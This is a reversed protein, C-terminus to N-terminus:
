KLADITLEDVEFAKISVRLSSASSLYAGQTLGLGSTECGILTREVKDIIQTMKKRIYRAKGTADMSHHSCVAESLPLPM